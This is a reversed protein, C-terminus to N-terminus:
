TTRSYGLVLQHFSAATFPFGAGWSCSIASASCVVSPQDSSSPSDFVRVTLQNSSYLYMRLHGTEIPKRIWIM